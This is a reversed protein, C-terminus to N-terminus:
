RCEDSLVSPYRYGYKVTSTASAHGAQFSTIVLEVALERGVGASVIVIALTAAFGRGHRVEGRAYKRKQWARRQM